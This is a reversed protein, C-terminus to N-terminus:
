RLLSLKIHHVRGGELVQKIEAIRYERGGFGIKQETSFETYFPKSRTCDYFLVASDENRVSGDLERVKGCVEVRVNSLTTASYVKNGFSDESVATKLVAFHPLLSEPIPKAARM